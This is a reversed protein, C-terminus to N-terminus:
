TFEFEKSKLQDFALIQSKQHSGLYRIEGIFVQILSEIIRMRESIKVKMPRNRKDASRVRLKPRGSPECFARTCGSGFDNIDVTRPTLRPPHSTSSTAASSVKNVVVELQRM